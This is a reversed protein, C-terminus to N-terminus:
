AMSEENENESFPQGSFLRELRSLMKEIHFEQEVRQRGKEGWEKALSKDCVIRLMADALAQPQRVPVVLGTKEHVVIEPMSSVNTTIAPKGAAMAEILVIGFGEWLSPLVLVDIAKMVPSIDACFGPLHIRDTLRHQIGFNEIVQALPGEGVLVLHADPVKEAVIAFATLLDDIGKREDLQGVFGIIPEQAAIRWASRTDAQQPGYFPTPDIGNYIVRVKDKPLWPANRLLAQKTAKSNAIVAKALHTYILRYHIKNKLPYDIGRRPFVSVGGALKAALGAIRFEKDMNTLVVQIKERKLLRAVHVIAFPNFDGGFRCTFVAIGRSRAVHELRTDPRCLLFVEHGRECLGTLARLMWVEGGGFMQISNVFLIHM